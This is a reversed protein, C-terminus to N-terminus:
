LVNENNDRREKKLYMLYDDLGKIDGKWFGDEGIDWTIREYHLNLNKATEKLKNSGSKLTKIKRLKDKCDCKILDGKHKCNKCKDKYNEDCLPNSFEDMDYANYVHTIGRNKLKVLMERMSKYCSVGAVGVFATNRDKCFCNCVCAKLIGDVVIIKKAIRNGFYGTQSGSTVGGPKDKSSLWLYKQGKKPVDLRIQFGQIYGKEDPCICFYGDMGWTNLRWENHPIDYYFGPIRSLNIGKSQLIRCISGSRSNDVSRFGYVAIQKDTLGRDKLAQRHKELLSTNQILGCYAKDLEEVPRKEVVESGVANNRSEKTAVMDQESFNENGFMKRLKEAAIKTRKKDKTSTIGYLDAYITYFNGQHNCKLCSFFKDTINCALKKTGCFPCEIYGKKRDIYKWGLRDAIDYMTFKEEM